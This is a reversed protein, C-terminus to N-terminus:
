ILLNRIILLYECEFRMFVDERVSKVLVMVKVVSEVWYLMEWVKWLYFRKWVRNGVVYM